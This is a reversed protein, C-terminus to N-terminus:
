HGGVIRVPVLRTASPVQGGILAGGRDGEHLAGVVDRLHDAERAVVPQPDRRLAGSVAGHRESRQGVHDQDLGLAHAADLNLIPPSTDLRPRPGGIQPLRRGLRTV